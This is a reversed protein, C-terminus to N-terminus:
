EKKALIEKTVCCSSSCVDKLMLLVSLTIKRKKDPLTKEIM